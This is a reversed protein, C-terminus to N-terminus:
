FKAAKPDCTGNPTLKRKYWFTGSRPAGRAARVEALCRDGPPLHVPVLPPCCPEGLRNWTMWAAAISAVALLELINWAISASQIPNVDKVEHQLDVKMVNETDFAKSRCACKAENMRNMRRIKLGSPYQDSYIMNDADM